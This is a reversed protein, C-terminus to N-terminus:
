KARWTRVTSGRFSRNELKGRYHLIQFLLRYSLPRGIAFKGGRGKSLIDIQIKCNEYKFSKHTGIDETMKYENFGSEELNDLSELYIIQLNWRRHCNFLLDLSYALLNIFIALHGLWITYFKQFQIPCIAM